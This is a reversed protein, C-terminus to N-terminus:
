SESFQLMGYFGAAVAGLVPVTSGLYVALYPAYSYLGFSTAFSTIGKLRRPNLARRKFVENTGLSAHDALQDLADARRMEEIFDNNANYLYRLNSRDIEFSFLEHEHVSRNQIEYM